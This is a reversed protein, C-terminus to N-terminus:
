RSSGSPVWRSQRCCASCASPATGSSPSRRAPGRRGCRRRVLRHRARGLRRSPEARDDPPVIPRPSWRATRSRCACSRLKHARAGLPVAQVRSQYGARCIACTNDSAFFSGVVFQGPKITKVASGVEEVIGCYEHGMPTPGSIARHGPVALTQAAFAPPPSGSSPTPRNWSPRARNAGRIACRGPRVPCRRAHHGAKWAPSGVIGDGSRAGVVKEETKSMKYRWSESAKLIVPQLQRKLPPRGHPPDRRSCRRAGDYDLCNRVPMAKAYWVAM